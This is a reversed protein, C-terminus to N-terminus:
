KQTVNKLNRFQYMSLFPQNYIESHSIIIKKLLYVSIKYTCAIKLLLWNALFFVLRAMYMHGKMRLTVYWNKHCVLGFKDLSYPAIHM